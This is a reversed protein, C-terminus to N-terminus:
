AGRYVCTQEPTKTANCANLFAREEAGISWQWAAAAIGLVPNSLNSIAAGWSFADVAMGVPRDSNGIIAIRLPVGWWGIPNLETAGRHLGVATTAADAAVGGYQACGSLCLVLAVTLRRM